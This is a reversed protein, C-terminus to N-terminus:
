EYANVGVKSDWLVRIRRCSELAMRADELADHSDRSDFGMTDFIADSIYAGTTIFGVSNSDYRSGGLPLGIDHRRFLDLLFPVDFMHVNHGLAKILTTPGWYKIILNAIKKM